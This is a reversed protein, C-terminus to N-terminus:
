RDHEQGIVKARDAGPKPRFKQVRGNFVEAIYLNGEQDITMSHPGGFQGALDVGDERRARGVGVAVARHAEHAVVLDLLERGRHGREAGHAWLHEVLDADIEGILDRRGTGQDAGEVGCKALVDPFRDNSLSSDRKVDSNKFTAICVM